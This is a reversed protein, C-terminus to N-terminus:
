IITIYKPFTMSYPSVSSIKSFRGSTKGVYNSEIQYKLGLSSKLFAVVQDGESWRINNDADMNTKTEVDCEIRAYIEDIDRQEIIENVQCSALLSCIFATFLIKKRIDVVAWINRIREFVAKM